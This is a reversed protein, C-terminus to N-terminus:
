FASGLLKLIRIFPFFKSYQFHIYVSFAEAKLYKKLPGPLLPTADMGAKQTKQSDNVVMHENGPLCLTTKCLEMM